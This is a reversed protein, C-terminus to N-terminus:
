PDESYRHRSDPPHGIAHVGPQFTTFVSDIDVEIAVLQRLRFKHEGFSVCAFLPGGTATLHSHRGTGPVGDIELSGSHLIRIVVYVKTNCEFILNLIMIQCQM